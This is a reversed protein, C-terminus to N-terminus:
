PLRGSSMAQEAVGIPLVEFGPVKQLEAFYASAFRRGDVAREESLNFFPVVAVKSLGPIPNTVGVDVIARLCGTTSVCVLILLVRPTM